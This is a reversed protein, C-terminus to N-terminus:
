GANVAITRTRSAKGKPLHLTLVGAKLEAKAQEAEVSAPLAFQRRYEFGDGRGTISLTEKELQVQLGQQAVGPLDAVFLYEDRNEFVDVAPTLTQTEASFQEASKKDETKM